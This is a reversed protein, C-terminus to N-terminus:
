PATSFPIARRALLLHSMRMLLPNPHCILSFIAHTRLRNCVTFRHFCFISSNSVEENSVNIYPYKPEAPALAGMSSGEVFEIKDNLIADLGQGRTLQQSGDPTDKSHPFNSPSTLAIPSAVALMARPSSFLYKRSCLILHRPTGRVLCLRVFSTSYRIKLSRQHM